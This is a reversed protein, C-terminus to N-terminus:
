GERVGKGRGEDSGGEESMEGEMWVRVGVWDWRVKWGGIYRVEM